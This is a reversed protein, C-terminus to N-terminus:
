ELPLASDPAAPTGAPGRRIRARVSDFLVGAQVGFPDENAMIHHSMMFVGLKIFSDHTLSDIVGRECLEHHEGAIPRLGLSITRLNNFVQERREKRIREVLLEYKALLKEAENDTELKKASEPNIRTPPPATRESQSANADDMEIANAQSESDQVAADPSAKEPEGTCGAVLALVLSLLFAAPIGRMTRTIAHELARAPSNKNFIRM